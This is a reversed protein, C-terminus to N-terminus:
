KKKKKKEPPTYNTDLPNMFIFNYQGPELEVYDMSAYELLENSGPDIVIEIDEYPVKIDGDKLEDFGMGYEIGGDKNTKAAIRLVLTEINSEKAAAHIQEAANDTISFM